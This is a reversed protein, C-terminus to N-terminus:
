SDGWIGRDLFGHDIPTEGVDDTPHGPRIIERCIGAGVWFRQFTARFKTAAQGQDHRIGVQAMTAHRGRCMSLFIITGATVNGKESCWRHARVAGATHELEICQKIVYSRKEDDIYMSCEGKGYTNTDLGGGLFTLSQTPPTNKEDNSDFGLSRLITLM